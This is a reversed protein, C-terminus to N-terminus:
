EQTALHYTKLGFIGIQTFKPPDQLPFHQDIKNVIQDIKNVIRDIKNVIQDIKNVIQDIKNVIQDIKHGNPM